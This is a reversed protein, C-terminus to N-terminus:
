FIISFLVKFPFLIINFLLELIWGIIRFPFAIIDFLNFEDCDGIDFRNDKKSCDVEQKEKESKEAAASSVSGDDAQAMLVWREGAAVLMHASVKLVPSSVEDATKIQSDAMLMRVEAIQKKMRDARTNKPKSLLAKELEEPSKFLKSGEAASYLLQPYPNQFEGQMAASAVAEPAAFLLLLCLIIILKKM